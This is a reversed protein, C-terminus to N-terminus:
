EEIKLIKDNIELRISKNKDIKNEEIYKLIDIAKTKSEKNQINFTSITLM